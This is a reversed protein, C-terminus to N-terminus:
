KFLIEFHYSQYSKNTVIEEDILTTTSHQWSMNKFNLHQGTLLFIFTHQNAEIWSM